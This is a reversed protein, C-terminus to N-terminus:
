QTIRRLQVPDDALDQPDDLGATGVPEDPGGSDPEASELAARRADLQAEFEAETMGAALAAARAARLERLLLRRLEQRQATTLDRSGAAPTGAM